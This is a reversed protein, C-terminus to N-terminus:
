GIDAITDTNYGGGDQAGVHMTSLSLLYRSGALPLTCALFLIHNLLSPLNSTKLSSGIPSPAHLTAVRVRCVLAHVDLLTASALSRLVCHRGGCM